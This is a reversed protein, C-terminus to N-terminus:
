GLWCFRSQVGGGLTLFLSFTFHASFFPLPCRRVNIRKRFFSASIHKKTDSFHKRSRKTAFFPKSGELYLVGFKGSIVFRRSGIGGRPTVLLFFNRSDIQQIKIQQKPFASAKIRVLSSVLTHCIKSSFRCISIEARILILFFM